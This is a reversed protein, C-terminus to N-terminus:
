QGSGPGVFIQQAAQTKTNPASVQVKLNVINKAGAPPEIRLEYQQDEKRRQQVRAREEGVQAVQAGVQAHDRQLRGFLTSYDANHWGPLPEPYRKKRGCSTATILLLPVLLLALSRKM